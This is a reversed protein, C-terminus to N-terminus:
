LQFPTVLKYSLSRTASDSTLQLTYTGSAPVCDLQAYAANFGDNTKTGQAITKGSQDLLSLSVTNYSWTWAVRANVHRSGDGAVSFTVPTSGVTGTKVYAQATNASATGTFPVGSYSNSATVKLLYYGGAPANYQVTESTTYRSESKAVLNGAPDYLYANLDTYTNAWNISASVQGAATPTLYTYYEANRSATGSFAKGPIPTATPTPSITPKPSVTPTPTPTATPTVTGSAVNLTYSKSAKISGASNSTATVTFTYTGTVTGAAPTIAMTIYAAANPQLVEGNYGVITYWAAPIGNVSITYSDASDGVNGMMIGQSITTGPIVQFQNMQGYQNNYRAFMSTLSVASGTGPQPTATPTPSVGPSPTPTPTPVPVKGTLVYDLAAKANVRGYGFNNNPISGGLQVATKQLVTKVQAPSLTKNAQLLLAVVGSTMPTAMSTGSMAKYYGSTSTGGAKAAMLGVGMNTIDPKVSGDRNPGRSSFSAIADNRDSAGVTIVYPSDGPCCITRTGPGSNGAAIVCVVGKSVAANVADDMVQSHTTSGLSMSIVQAGNQVAWDIAKVINTDSGSGGSNLVKAEMLSAEPAVGKYQGNSAAGTGAITSSVHTGHGHDDYPTTKGNVYDIWAVVKGGNLDPHNADAGTDIVCVKVGKGTYGSAWVQDAGIQPVAKDLFAQVTQEKEVYKVNSLKAIESVKNDPISIVMGNIISYRHLVKGNFSNVLDTVKSDITVSPADKFAVVYTSLGTSAGGENTNAAPQSAGVVAITSLLVMLMVVIGLTTKTKIHTGEM